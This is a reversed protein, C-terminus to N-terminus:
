TWRCGRSRKPIPSDEDDGPQPLAQADSLRRLCTLILEHDEAARAQLSTMIALLALDPPVAQFSAPATPTHPVPHAMGLAILEAVVGAGGLFDAAQEKPIRGATYLKSYAAILEDTVLGDFLRCIREGESEPAVHVERIPAIRLM